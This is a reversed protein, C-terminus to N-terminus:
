RIVYIGGKGITAERWKDTPLRIGAKHFPLRDIQRQLSVRTDAYSDKVKELASPKSSKADVITSTPAWAPRDLFSEAIDIDDIASLMAVEAQIEDTDLKEKSQQDPLHDPPRIFGMVQVEVQTNLQIPEEDGQILYIGLGMVGTEAISAHSSKAPDYLIASVIAKHWYEDREVTAEKENYRGGRNRVWGFYYGNLRSLVDESVGTLYTVPIDFKEAINSRYDVCGVFDIPFPLKPTDDPLDEYVIDGFTESRKQDYLLNADKVNSDVRKAVGSFDYAARAATEMGWSPKYPRIQQQVAAVIPAVANGIGTKASAKASSSLVKAGIELPLTSLSAGRISAPRTSTSLVRFVPSPCLVKKKPGACLVLRYYGDGADVPIRVIATERLKHKAAVSGVSRKVFAAIDRQWAREDSPNLQEVDVRTLPTVDLWKGNWGALARARM